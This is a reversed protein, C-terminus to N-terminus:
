GGGTAAATDWADQMARGIDEPTKAGTLLESMWVHYPGPSYKLTTGYMPVSDRKLAADLQKRVETVTAPLDYGEFIPLDGSADLFAQYGDGTAYRLFALAAEQKVPDKNVPIQYSGAQSVTWMAVQDRASLPFYGIKNAVAEIGHTANLDDLVFSGSFAIVASGDWLRATQDEYQTTALDSEFCGADKFSQLMEFEALVRPDTFKLTGANIEAEIGAKVEDSMFASGFFFIPWQAGAGLVIPTVSPDAAKIQECLQRLGDWNTPITLGLREFVERNYFAGGVTPYATFASYVRDNVKGVYDYVPFKVKQVFAESSLDVLNTEAQLKQLWTPLGHFGLIDPRDGAIWKALLSDEFPDPIAIYEIKAGTAEEFRKWVDQFPQAIGTSTWLTLTVGAFNPSPSPQASASPQESAAAETPSPPPTTPGPGGACGAVVVAALLALSRAYQM